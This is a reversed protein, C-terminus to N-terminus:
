FPATHGHSFVQFEDESMNENKLAENLDQVPKMYNEYGLQFTGWHIGLSFKSKIEKHVKVAEAPNVHQAKLLDRPEYAGIPILSLDFPGYHHGIQKFIMDNYGTDGAFYVNKKDSKISWGSWLTCNRDFGTRMSWHQAPLCTFTLKKDNEFTVTEEDWWNMEQVNGEEIGSSVFWKKLGLPVFWKVDSFKNNIDIVSNYDLHDYHNHSIVVANVVPIEDLKIGPDKFRKFKNTLNWKFASCNQSFIPDTLVFLDNIKILCSAHGIWTVSNSNCSHVEKFNNSNPLTTNIETTDSPVASDDRQWLALRLVEKPNLFRFEPFPNIFKWGRKEITCKAENIATNGVDDSAAM